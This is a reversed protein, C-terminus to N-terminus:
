STTLRKNNNCINIKRNNFESDDRKIGLFGLLLADQLIQM